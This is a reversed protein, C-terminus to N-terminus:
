LNWISKAHKFAVRWVDSERYPCPFPDEWPTDLMASTVAVSCAKGANLDYGGELILGIKGECHIDAWSCLKEILKGYGNATLLLQGLPDLWHSDYGYSILIMQPKRQDLLPLILENIFTNYAIDGSGAPLPINVTWGEGDGEGIQELQGTGPYFPSQHTSIYLVDNRRWFIDQTGNGHHLDLDIIAIKNVQYSRILYETAIAINNLLCFGMGQGHM